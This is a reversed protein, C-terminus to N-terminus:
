TKEPVEQVRQAHREPNPSPCRSQPLPPSSEHNSNKYITPPRDPQIFLISTVETKDRMLLDSRRESRMRRTTESLRERKLILFSIKYMIYIPDMTTVARAAELVVWAKLRASSVREATSMDLRDTLLSMLVMELMKLLSEAAVQGGTQFSIEVVSVAWNRRSPWHVSAARAAIRPAKWSQKLPAQSPDRIRALSHALGSFAPRSRRQAFKAFTAVCVPTPTASRM